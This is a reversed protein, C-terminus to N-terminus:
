QLILPNLLHRRSHILVQDDSFPLTNISYEDNMNIDPDAGKWKRLITDRYFSCLSPFSSCRQKVGLNVGSIRTLITM